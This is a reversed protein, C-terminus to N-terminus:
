WTLKARRVLATGIVVGAFGAAISGSAYAVALLAEGHDLM